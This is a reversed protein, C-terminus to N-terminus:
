IVNVSKENRREYWGYRGGEKRLGRGLTGRGIRGEEMKRADRCLPVNILEYKWQTVQGGDWSLRQEARVATGNISM